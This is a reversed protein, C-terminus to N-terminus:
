YPLPKDWHAIDDEMDGDEPVILFKTRIPPVPIYYPSMTSVTEDFVWLGDPPSYAQFFHCFILRLNTSAPDIKGITNKIKEFRALEVEPGDYTEMGIHLVATDDTDFQQLAGHVQNKIDRAKAFLAESSDCEWFVGYANKIDAIFLNNIEGEGVRFFNGLLGSTFGKNDVPKEGILLNLMPSSNKVYYKKLHEKIKPIDVFSLNIDVQENSVIKGRTALKLKNELLDRLFTDPLSELEVHFVINLLINQQLLIKSVYSIMKQRKATERYTYNATKSQRKCEIKWIKGEKKAMLDPTKGVSKEKLFTVEYGNKAWLLATLIEFLLADAESRRKKILNKIREEIGSISKLRELDSGLRKFIPIVRAGQFYEYKHPENILMDILYLYWGIVDEKIVLLTGETLPESFPNSTRFEVAIKNEIATKRKQWERDSIFSMFWKWAGIVDNDNFPPIPFEELPIRLM